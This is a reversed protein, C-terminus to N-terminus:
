SRSSFNASIESDFAKNDSFESLLRVMLPNVIRNEGNSIFMSIARGVILLAVEDRCWEIIM